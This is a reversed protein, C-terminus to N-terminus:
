AWHQGGEAPAAEVDDPVPDVNMRQADAAHTTCMTYTVTGTGADINVRTTVQRSCVPDLQCQYGQAQDAPIEETTVTTM